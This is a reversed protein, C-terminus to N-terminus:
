ETAFSADQLTTVDVSQEWTEQCIKCWQLGKGIFSGNTDALRWRNHKMEKQQVLPGHCGMGELTKWEHIAETDSIPAANAMRQSDMLLQFLERTSM